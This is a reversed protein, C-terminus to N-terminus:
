LNPNQIAKLASGRLAILERAQKRFPKVDRKICCMIHKKILKADADHNLYEAVAKVFANIPRDGRSSNCRKCCTILNLPRNDPKDSSNCCFIHDLTLQAGQEIGENCYACALGDRLYIALRSNQSIWNMGNWNAQRKQNRTLIEDM